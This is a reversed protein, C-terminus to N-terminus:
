KQLAQLAVFTETTDKQHAAERVKDPDLVIRLNKYMHRDAEECLKMDLRM